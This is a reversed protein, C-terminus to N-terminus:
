WYIAAPGHPHAEMLGPARFIINYARMLGRRGEMTAGILERVRSRAGDAGILYRSIVEFEECDRRLTATVADATQASVVFETDFRVEVSPQSRVKELM